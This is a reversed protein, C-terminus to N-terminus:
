QNFSHGKLILFILGWKKGVQILDIREENGALGDLM